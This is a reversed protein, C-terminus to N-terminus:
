FDSTEYETLEELSDDEGDDWRYAIDLARQWIRPQSNPKDGFTRRLRVAWEQATAEEWGEDYKKENANRDIRLVDAWSRARVEVADLESLRTQMNQVTGKAVGTSTSIDRQSYCRHGENFKVLQWAKEAKEWYSLALKDKSNCSAALALAEPFTGRFHRVPISATPARGAKRYAELRCHGDVVIRVGRIPFVVIPDLMQLPHKVVKALNEIHREKEWPKDSMNRPQFVLPAVHLNALRVRTQSLQADTLGSKHKAFHAALGAPTITRLEEELAAGTPKPLNWPIPRDDKLRGADWSSFSRRDIYRM